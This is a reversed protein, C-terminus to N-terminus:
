GQKSAKLHKARGWAQDVLVVALIEVGRRGGGADIVCPRGRVVDEGREGVDEPLEIEVRGAVPRAARWGNARTCRPSSSFPRKHRQCPEAKTLGGYPLLKFCQSALAAWSAVVRGSSTTARTGARVSVCQHCSCMALRASMRMNRPRKFNPSPAAGAGNGEANIKQFQLGSVAAWSDLWKVPAHSM